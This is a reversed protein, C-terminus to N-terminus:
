NCICNSRNTALYKEVFPTRRNECRLIPRGWQREFVFLLEATRAVSERITGIATSNFPSFISTPRPDLSGRGPDGFLSIREFLVNQRFLSRKASIPEYMRSYLQESDRLKKEMGSFRSRRM